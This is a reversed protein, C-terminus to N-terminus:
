LLGIGREWFEDWTVLFELTIGAGAKMFEGGIEGDLGVEENFKWGELICLSITLWSCYWFHM